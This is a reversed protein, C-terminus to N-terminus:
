LGGMSMFVSPVPRNNNSPKRDNYYHDVDLLYDCQEDTEVAQDCHIERVTDVAESASIGCNAILISSLATGTRGHSAGCQICVSEYGMRKIMDSLSKWFTMEVEPASFDPCPVMLERFNIDFDFEGYMETPNETYYLNSLKTLNIVLDGDFGLVHNEDSTYYSVNGIRIVEQPPHLCGILGFM